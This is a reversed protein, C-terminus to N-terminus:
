VVKLRGSRKAELERTRSNWWEIPILWHEATERLLYGHHDLVESVRAYDSMVAYRRRLVLSLDSKPIALAKNDSTRVLQVRITGNANIHPDVHSEPVIVAHGLRMLDVTLDILPEPLGAESDPFVIAEAAMTKVRSGGCKAVFLAVDELVRLYWNEAPHTARWTLNRECFDQLYAPIFNKLVVQGERSLKRVARDDDIIYWGRLMKQMTATYWSLAVLSNHSPALSREPDMWRVLTGLRSPAYEVYLPWNHEQERAVLVEERNTAKGALQFEHCDAAQRILKMTSVLGAGHVGIGCPERNFVPALINALTASMISFVAATTSRNPMLEAMDQGSLKMPPLLSRAPTKDPLMTETNKTVEGGLNIRYRPLVFALKDADWGVKDVGRVFKPTQLLYAIDLLRPSWKSDGYLIGVENELTLNQLFRITNVELEEKLVCFPIEVDEYILRGQFYNKATNPQRIIKDLRLSAGLIMEHTGPRHGDVYWKGDREIIARGNLLVIRGAETSDMIERLREQMKRSRMGRIVVGIDLGDLQLQLLLEEIADNSLTKFYKEVVMAWPKAGNQVTKMLNYVTTYHLWEKLPTEDPGTTSIFANNKIAHFLLHRNMREPSWFILKRGSLISWANEPTASDCCYWSVIPLPKSSQECQRSQLHIALVPDPIAIISQDWEDSTKRFEPHVSIGAERDHLSAPSVNVRRFFVDRNPKGDRGIFLFACIRDPLDYFPIVLVDGWPRVRRGTFMKSDKVLDETGPLLLKEIERFHQVGFLQGPGSEWYDLHRTHAWCYKTLLKRADPSTLVHPGQSKEWITQIRKRTEVYGKLYKAVARRDTNIEAGSKELKSITAPLSLGWVKAALEIM